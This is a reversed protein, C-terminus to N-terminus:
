SDTLRTVRNKGARKSEYLARDARELLDESSVIHKDPATAVGVSITCNFEKGNLTLLNHEIKERIREATNIANQSNTEPLLIVFEDGGYRALVDSDRSAERLIDGLIKIAEDGTPHGCTDNIAKLNDFDAVILSLFSGYRKFREFESRLRDYFARHNLLGTLGDTLALLKTKRHLNANKLVGALRRAIIRLIDEVYEINEIRGGSVGIISNVSNEILIPVFVSEFGDSSESDDEDEDPMDSIDAPVSLRVKFIDEVPANSFREFEQKAARQIGTIVERPIGRRSFIVMEKAFEEYLFFTYYQRPILTAIGALISDVLMEIDITLNFFESLKDIQVIDDFHKVMSPDHEDLLQKLRDNKINLRRRALAAETQVKIEAFSIPKQIYASAGYQFTQLITEDSGFGTVVIVESLPKIKKSRKLIDIGSISDLRLDVFLVDYEYSEINEYAKRGDTEFQSEYGIFDFFDKLLNCVEIENDVIFIKPVGSGM